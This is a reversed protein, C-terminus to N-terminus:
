TSTRYEGPGTTEDALAMDAPLTAAQRASVRRRVKHQDRHHGRAVGARHEVHGAGEGSSAREDREDRRGEVQGAEAAGRAVAREGDAEQRERAEAEEAVEVVGAGHEAPREDREEPVPLAVGRQRAADDGIGAM